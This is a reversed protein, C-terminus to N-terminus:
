PLSPRKKATYITLNKQDNPLSKLTNTIVPNGKGKEGFGAYIRSISTLHENVREHPVILGGQNPINSGPMGMRSQESLRKKRMEEPAPKSTVRRIEAEKHETQRRASLQLSGTHPM